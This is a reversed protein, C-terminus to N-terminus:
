KGIRFRNRIALVFFFLLTASVFFQVISTFTTWVPPGAEGGAGRASRQVADVDRYLCDHAGVLQGARGIGAFPFAGHASLVMASVLPSCRDEHEIAEDSVPLYESWGPEGQAAYAAAFVVISALLLLAPRLVSLGFDATIQYAWGIWYFLGTWRDERGRRAQIEGKLFQLERQSDGGQKALRRLARWKAQPPCYSDIADKANASWSKTPDPGIGDLVPPAEFHSQCFNPIQQFRTDTLSLNGLGHVSSFDADREFAGEGFIVIGNFRVNTFYADSRFRAQGFITLGGFEAGLFTADREFVVRQFSANRSINAQSFDTRGLFTSKEVILWTLFQAECLRTKGKKVVVRSFLVKETFKARTFDPGQRFRCRKFITVRRFDADKFRAKKGFSVRNFIAIGVFGVESFDAPGGFVLKKFLADGSFEAHVFTVAEVFTTRSFSAVGEFASNAFSVGGRSLVSEDGRTPAAEGVARGLFEAEDFFSPGEFKAGTFDVRGPFCFRAFRGGAGFCHGTFDAAAKCDWQRRQADTTGVDTELLKQAWANWADVGREYLDISEDRNM